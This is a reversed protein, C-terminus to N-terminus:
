EHAKETTRELLTKEHKRTDRYIFQLTDPTCAAKSYLGTAGKRRQKPGDCGNNYRDEANASANERPPPRVAGAKALGECRKTEWVVEQVFQNRGFQKNLNQPCVFPTLSM